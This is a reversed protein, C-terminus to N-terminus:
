MKPEKISNNIALSYLKRGNSHVHKPCRLPFAGSTVRAEWPWRGSGGCPGGTSSVLIRDSRPTVEQMDCPV